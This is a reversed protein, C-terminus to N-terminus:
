RGVAAPSVAVAPSATSMTSRDARVGGPLQGAQAAIADPCPRGLLRGREDRDRPPPQRSAELLDARRRGSYRENEDVIQAVCPVCIRAPITRTRRRGDRDVFPRALYIPYLKAGDDEDTSCRLCWPASRPAYPVGGLM